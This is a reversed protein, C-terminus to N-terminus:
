IQKYEFNLGLTSALIKPTTEFQKEGNVIINLKEKFEHKIVIQIELIDGVKLESFDKAGTKFKQETIKIKSSCVANFQYIKAREQMKDYTLKEM